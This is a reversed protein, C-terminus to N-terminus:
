KDYSFLHTIKCSFYALDKKDTANLTIYKLLKISFKNTINM